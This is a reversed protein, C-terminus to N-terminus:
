GRAGAYHSFLRILSTKKDCTLCWAVQNDVTQFECFPGLFDM